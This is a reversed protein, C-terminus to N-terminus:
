NAPKVDTPAHAAMKLDNILMDSKNEEAMQELLRCIIDLQISIKKEKVHEDCFRRLVVPIQNADSFYCFDYNSSLGYERKRIDINLDFISEDIIPYTM